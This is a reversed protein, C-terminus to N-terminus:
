GPKLGSFLWLAMGLADLTRYMDHNIGKMTDNFDEICLSSDQLM